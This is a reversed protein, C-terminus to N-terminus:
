FTKRSFFEGRRLEFLSHAFRRKIRQIESDGVILLDVEVVIVQGFKGPLAQKPRGLNPTGLLLIVIGSFDHGRKKGFIGGGGDRRLGTLKEL